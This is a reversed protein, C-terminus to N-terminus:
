SIGMLVLLLLFLMVIVVIFMFLLLTRAIASAWRLRYAGKMQVLLHAGPVLTSALVIWGQGLGAMGALTIAIFLMSMFAISYTVFVMHDYLRYQRKWFFLLWMFPLSLPILLWSFKYVNTQLKYLMLSPNKQWKEIGHDLLPLGTRSRVGADSGRAAGAQGALLDLTKLQADLEAIRQTDRERRPDTVKRRDRATVLEARREKATAIAQEVGAPTNVNTEFSTPATIGAVSFVAFMAFISFLFLAVPSVFRAREGEIFRRTLEGPRWTLLPLTRWFKGEFHFVGHVLEHGIGGLSRHVHGSQGCQHCHQGILATGCNLCITAGHGDAGEGARPEAARGLLSGTVLEGAADFEGM